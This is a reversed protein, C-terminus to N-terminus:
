RLKLLRGTERMKGAQVAYFYVGSRLDRGQRDSGDWLLDHWGRGLEGSHLNRVVRGAADHITVETWVAGDQTLAAPIRFRLATELPFPNPSCSCGLKGGPVQPVSVQSSYVILDRGDRANLELRYWYTDGPESEYDLWQCSETCGIYEYGLFEYPGDPHTAREVTYDWYVGPVNLEVADDHMVVHVEAAQGALPFASSTAVLAFILMWYRRINRM